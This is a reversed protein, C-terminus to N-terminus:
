LEINYYLTQKPVLGFWVPDTDDEPDDGEVVAGFERDKIWGHVDGWVVGSVKTMWSEVEARDEATLRTV